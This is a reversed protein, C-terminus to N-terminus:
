WAFTKTTQLMAFLLPAPFPNNHIDFSWRTIDYRLIDSDQVPVCAFQDTAILQGAPGRLEGSGNGNSPGGAMVRYTVPGLARIFGM